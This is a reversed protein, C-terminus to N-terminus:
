ETAVILSVSPSIKLSTRIIERFGANELWANVEDFSYTHGRSSAFFATDFFRSIATVTKSKKLQLHSISSNRSSSDSTVELIAVRGVDIAAKSVKRLLEANSDPDHAHLINFLFVLDYGNGINNSEKM